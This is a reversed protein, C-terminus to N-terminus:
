PFGAVELACQNRPFRSRVTEINDFELVLKVKVGEARLKRDIERRTPLDPAFAIFKEDRLASLPIRREYRTRRLGASGLKYQLSALSSVRLEPRGSFLARLRWECRDHRRFIKLCPKYSLSTALLTPRAPLFYPLAVRNERPHVQPAHCHSFPNSTDLVHYLLALAAKVQLHHSASRGRTAEEYFEGVRESPLAELVLGEAAAWAIIRLWTRGIPMAKHRVSVSFRTREPRSLATRSSNTARWTPFSGRFGASRESDMAAAIALISPSAKEM